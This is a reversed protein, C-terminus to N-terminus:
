FFRYLEITEITKDEIFNYFMINVTEYGAEMKQVRNWGCLEYFPVMRDRCLLIGTKKDRVLTANAQFMLKLGLGMHELKKTVCVNGIGYMCQINNNLNVNVNVMHLYAVLINEEYLCISYDDKKIYTDFWIRQSDIGHCWHEDKLKLIQTIESNNLEEKQKIIFQYNEM